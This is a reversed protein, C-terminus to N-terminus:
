VWRGKSDRKASRMVLRLSDKDRETMTPLRDPLEEYIRKVRDNAYSDTKSRLSLLEPLVLDVKNMMGRKIEIAFISKASIYSSSGDNNMDVVGNSLWRWGTVVGTREECEKSSWIKSYDCKRRWEYQRHLVHTYSVSTGFTFM